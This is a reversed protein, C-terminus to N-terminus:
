SSARGARALEVPDQDGAARALARGAEWSSRMRRIFREPRELYVRAGLHLAETQLERRRFDILEIGDALWQVALEHAGVEQYSLGAANYLWV